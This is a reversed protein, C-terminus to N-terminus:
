RVALRRGRRLARHLLTATSSKGNTGTVGVVRGPYAALFLECEQTTPLGRRLAEQRLPNHDPVAPSTVVLDVDDLLGLDERGLQWDIGADGFTAAVERLEDSDSGDAVRVRCGLRVLHRTAERGGGFRGLGHVLVRTGAAPHAPDPSM